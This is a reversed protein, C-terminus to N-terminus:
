SYWVFGSDVLATTMPSFWVVQDIFHMLQRARWGYIAAPEGQGTTLRCLSCNTRNMSRDQSPVSCIAAACWTNALATSPQTLEAAASLDPLVPPM